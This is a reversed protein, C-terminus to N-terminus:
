FQVGLGVTVRHDKADVKHSGGGVDFNESGYDTYRYEVRGFVKETLKVDTGVGATWGLQTQSDKDGGMEVSMRKAAGGATVYGLMDPTVTYGLRARLSGDVGGKVKTGANDGEVGSYGVDGEVGAVIGGGTDYNYGLFGGGIFGDTGIKNGATDDHSRGAFGYGASIGAYAGTWTAVPPQEMPVAPEPVDQVVDAAQAAGVGLLAAFGLAAVPRALKLIASM